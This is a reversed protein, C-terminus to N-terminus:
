IMITQLLRRWDDGLPRPRRHARDVYVHVFFGEAAPAPNGNVFLGIDYRVSSNGLHSVAIGAQVEDPFAVPRAYRCGTEAVLGISDGKMMDLLGKDVLWANVATDFWSYFVVNNVHGYVDNDMWRTPITRWARYHSRPRYASRSSM